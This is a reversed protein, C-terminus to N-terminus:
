STALKIFHQQISDVSLDVWRRGRLEKMKTNEKKNSYSSMKNSFKHEEKFGKRWNTLRYLDSWNSYVTVVEENFILRVLFQPSWDLITICWELYFAWILYFFVRKRQLKCWRVSEALWLSEPKKSKRDPYSCGFVEVYKPNRGFGEFYLYLVWFVLFLIGFRDKFNLGLASM